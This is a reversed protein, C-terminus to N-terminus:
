IHTTAESPKKRAKICNAIVKKKQIHEKVHIDTFGTRELLATLEDITTLNSGKSLKKVDSMYVYLLTNSKLVRKLEFLSISPKEWFGYVDIAMAIDFQDADFPIEESGATTIKIKDSLKESEILQTASQISKQNIDIGKIKCDPFRKALNIATQGSAVGIELIHSDPHFEMQDIMWETASRTDAHVPIQKSKKFGLM